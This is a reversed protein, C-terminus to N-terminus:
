NLERPRWCGVLKADCEAALESWSDIAVDLQVLAATPLREYSGVMLELLEELGPNHGVVLIRDHEDSVRRLREVISEPDAHYLVRDAEFPGDCDCANMLLAATDLARRADSSLVFDPVLDSERLHRGMRPADRKGRKKLPREHDSLDAHKWSSKAHRLLLLTKM